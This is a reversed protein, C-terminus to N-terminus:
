KGWTDWIGKAAGGVYGAVRGVGYGLGAGAATGAVWGPVAGVGPVTVAGGTAGIV